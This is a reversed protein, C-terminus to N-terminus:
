KIFSYCVLLLLRSGHHGRRESREELHERLAHDQRDAEDGGDAEGLPAQPPGRREVHCAERGADDGYEVGHVTLEQM